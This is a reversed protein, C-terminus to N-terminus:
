HRTQSMLCSLMEDAWPILHDVHVTKLHKAKIRHQNLAGQVQRPGYDSRLVVPIELKQAAELIKLGDWGGSLHPRISIVFPLRSLGLIATEVSHRIDVQLDINQRRAKNVLLTRLDEALDLDIEVIVALWSTKVVPLRNIPHPNEVVTGILKAEAVAAAHSHIKKIFHAEQMGRRHSNAYSSFSYPESMGIDLMYALDLGFHQCMTEALEVESEHLLLIVEQRNVSAEGMMEGILEDFKVALGEASYDNVLVESGIILGCYNLHMTGAKTIEYWDEVSIPTEKSSALELVEKMKEFFAIHGRAAIVVRASCTILQFPDM